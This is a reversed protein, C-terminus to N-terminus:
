PNLIVDDLLKDSLYNSFAGKIFKAELDKTKFSLYVM